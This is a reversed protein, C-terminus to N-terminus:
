AMAGKRGGEAGQDSFVDDAVTDRCAHDFTTFDSFRVM